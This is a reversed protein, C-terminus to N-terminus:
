CYMGTKNKENDIGVNFRMAILADEKKDYATQNLPDVEIAKDYYKIAKDFLRKHAYADGLRIYVYPNHPEERAARQLIRIADDPKGNKILASAYELMLKVNNEPALNLAKKYYNLAKKMPKGGKSMYARAIDQYVEFLKVDSGDSKGVTKLVKKFWELAEDPSEQALMIRGKLQYFKPDKKLTLALDIIEEAVSYDKDKFFKYAEDYLMDASKESVIGSVIVNVLEKRKEQLQKSLPNLSLARDMDEMCGKYDGKSLRVRARLDYLEPTEMRSLRETIFRDAEDLRGLRFLMFAKNLALTHSGPDLDLARDYDTLAKEFDGKKAYIIARLNYLDPRKFRKLLENIKALADEFRGSSIMSKIKKVEENVDDVNGADM